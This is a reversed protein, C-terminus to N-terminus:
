PTPLTPDQQPQSPPDIGPGEGLKQPKSADEVQVPMVGVDANMKAHQEGQTHTETDLNGRQTLVGTM